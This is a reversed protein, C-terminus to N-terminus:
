LASRPPAFKKRRRQPPLFSPVYFFILVHTFFFRPPPPRRTSVTLRMRRSLVCSSDFGDFFRITAGRPLGYCMQPERCTATFSACYVFNSSNLQVRTYGALEPKPVNFQVGKYCSISTTSPSNPITSGAACMPPISFSDSSGGGSSSSGGGNNAGSGSSGGGGRSGGGGNNTGNGGNLGGNSSSGGSTTVTLPAVQTGVCITKQSASQAPGVAVKCIGLAAGTRNLLTAGHDSVFTPTGSCDAATFGWIQSGGDTTCVTKMGM